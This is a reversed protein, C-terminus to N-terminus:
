EWEFAGKKWVYVLGALLVFIFLGMELMGMVGLTRFVVAWPYLMAIEIDFVLFILAIIFFKVSLKGQTALELPPVGCEYQEMKEPNKKRPGILFSLVIM